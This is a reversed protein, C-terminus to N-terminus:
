KRAAAAVDRRGLAPVVAGSRVVGSPPVLGESLLPRTESHRDILRELSRRASQVESKGFRTEWRKEIEVTLWHYADQAARGKPTLRIVRGRSATADASLSVYPKLQWGVDSTEPSCGTLQPIDRLPVPTEGLVRLVNASLALPTAAERDFDIAF